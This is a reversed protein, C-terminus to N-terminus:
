LHMRFRYVRPIAPDFVLLEGRPTVAIQPAVANVMRGGLDNDLKHQGDLTYVRIEPPTAVMVLLVQSTAAIGTIKKPATASKAPATWSTALSGDPLYKEIRRSDAYAVFVSGDKTTTVAFPKQEIASPNQAIPVRKEWFKIERGRDDFKIVRSTAPDPVYVNGQDDVSVGLLGAFHPQAAIRMSRLFTGDPFFIMVNGRQADVIYIAAGRDIAIGAARSVRPDEFSLLPTGTAKFKHVFNESPEAFFVNNLSDAAFVVPHQLKGPGDGKAGWGGLFEFVPMEQAKAVPETRKACSGADLAAILVAAALCWRRIPLLKTV